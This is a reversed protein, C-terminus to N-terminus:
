SWTGRSDDNAVHTKVVNTVLSAKPFRGSFQVIITRHVERVMYALSAKPFRPGARTVM